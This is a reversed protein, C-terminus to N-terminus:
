NNRITYTPLIEISTVASFNGMNASSNHNTLNLSQWIKMRSNVVRGAVNMVNM